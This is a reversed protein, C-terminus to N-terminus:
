EHLRIAWHDCQRVGYSTSLHRRMRLRLIYPFGSGSFHLSHRERFDFKGSFSASSDM